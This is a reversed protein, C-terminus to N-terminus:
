FVRRNNERFATASEYVFLLFIDSNQRGNTSAGFKIGGLTCITYRNAPTKLFLKKRCLKNERPGSKRIRLGEVVKGNQNTTGVLRRMERCERLTHQAKGNTFFACRSNETIKDPKRLSLICPSVFLMVGCCVYERLIKRTDRQSIM